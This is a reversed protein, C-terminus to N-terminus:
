FWLNCLKFRKSYWAVSLFAFPLLGHSTVALLENGTGTNNKFLSKAVKRVSLGVFFFKRTMKIDTNRKWVCSQVFNVVVFFETM